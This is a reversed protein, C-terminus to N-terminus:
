PRLAAIGVCYKSVSIPRVGLRRLLRDAESSGNASKSEVLVHTNRDSISTLETHCSLGVDCTLRWRETPAALTIRRYLNAEGQPARHEAQRDL